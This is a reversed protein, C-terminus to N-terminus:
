MKCVCEFVFLFLKSHFTALGHGERTFHQSNRVKVKAHLLRLYWLCLQPNVIFPSKPVCYGGLTHHFLSFQFSYHGDEIFLLTSRGQLYRHIPTKKTITQRHICYFSQFFINYTYKSHILIFKALLKWTLLFQGM